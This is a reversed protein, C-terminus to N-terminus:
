LASSRENLRRAVLIRLSCEVNPDAYRGGNPWVKEVVEMHNGNEHCCLFIKLKLIFWTYAKEYPWLIKKLVIGTVCFPWPRPPGHGCPLMAMHSHPCIAM